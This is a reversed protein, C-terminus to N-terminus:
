RHKATKAKREQIMQAAERKLDSWFKEDAPLPEGSQLGEMLLEELRAQSRRKQDLRILARVFESPTSYGGQAQEEVYDKLEDPLSINM